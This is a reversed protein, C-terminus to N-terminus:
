ATQAVATSFVLQQDIIGIYCFQLPYFDEAIGDLYRVFYREGIVPGGNVSSADCLPIKIETHHEYELIGEDSTLYRIDMGLSFVQVNMILLPIYMFDILGETFLSYM